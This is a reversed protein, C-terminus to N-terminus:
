FEFSFSSVRLEFGHPKVSTQVGRYEQKGV